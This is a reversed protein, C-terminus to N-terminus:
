ESGISDSYSVVAKAPEIASVLAPRTLGGLWYVPSTPLALGPPLILKVLLLMWLVHRVSARARRALLLDALLLVVVLVAAQWAMPLAHTMAIRGGDNLFEILRDM